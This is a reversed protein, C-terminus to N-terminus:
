SGEAISILEATYYEDTVMEKTSVKDAVMEAIISGGFIHLEREFNRREPPVIVTIPTADVTPTKAIAARDNQKERLYLTTLISSLSLCGPGPDAFGAIDEDPM